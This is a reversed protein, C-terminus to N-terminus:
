RFYQPNYTVWHGKIQNKAEACTNFLSKYTSSAKPDNQIGLPKKAATVRSSGQGGSGGRATVLKSKAGSTSAREGGGSSSAVKQQKGISPADTWHFDDYFHKQM